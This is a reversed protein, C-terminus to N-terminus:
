QGEEDEDTPAEDQFFGESREVLIELLPGSSPQPQTIPWDVSGYSSHLWNRDIVKFLGGQIRGSLDHLYISDGILPPHDTHLKGDHNRSNIAIQDYNFLGPHTESPTRLHFSCRVRTDDSVACGVDV